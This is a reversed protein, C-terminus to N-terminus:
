APQYGADIIAARVDDLNVTGDATIHVTSTGGANLDVTVAGVCCVAAVAETVHTVCNTCTLGDVRISIDATTTTPAAEASGHGCM